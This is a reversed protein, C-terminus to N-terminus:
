VDGARGVRQRLDAGVVGVEHVVGCAEQEAQLGEVGGAADGGAAAVVVHGAHAGGVACGEEVTEGSRGMWGDITLPAGAPAGRWTRPVTRAVTRARERMCAARSDRVHYLISEM